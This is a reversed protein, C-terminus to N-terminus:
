ARDGPRPRPTPTNERKKDIPEFMQPRGKVAWWPSRIFTDMMEKWSFPAAPAMYPVGLSRLSVLHLLLVLGLVVVGYLGLLGAAVLFVFQLVRSTNVLLYSPITFSAIGTMAVVIVMAPSVIGAKVAADGIILAGVISVSQGVARPLRIGAERLAEFALQMIFTEVVTPFPIGQHQSQISVLLPTPILDQQYSLLAVYVAPLLISTWFMLHRLVRIPLSILYFGYYDEVSTLFHYFSTPVLLCLPASDVMIAVRGQLIGAAVRDPRETIESTPFPSYPTDTISELIYNTDLVADIDIRSLRSRVEEVLQPKVIGEIYVMVVATNSIRGIRHSEIKIRPSKLRKRLLGINIDLNATFAEQPGHISPEVQPTDVSLGPIRSLDAALAVASGDVLIVTQGDAIAQHVAAVTKKRTVPVSTLSAEVTEASVTNGKFAVLPRIIGEQVLEKDILSQIWFVCARTGHIRLVRHRLDDCHNWDRCLLNVSQDLNPPIPADDPRVANETGFGTKAHATPGGKRNRVRFWHRFM